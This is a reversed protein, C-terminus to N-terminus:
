MDLVAVVATKNYFELYDKGSNAIEGISMAGILPRGNGCVAELEAGFNEELFYVRSICDMMFLTGEKGAGRFGKEALERAKMASAVLSSIDGKMIHVFAEQPVEGVCVLGSEDTPKFPDRIVEEAGLKSIGFPYCKAIEFFNDWDLNRGSSKEVARRYVDFAPSWDLENVINRDSKTVRYPGSLTEWGHSVGVGSEIELLALVASDQILGANTFLCPKQVMSMSGAGGGIYNFELGFVDFLGELLASIRKAFGDVFVFMTKTLASDPIKADIIDEYEVEANSLSPIVEIKAEVPLCAVITGKELKQRNWVIAPFIGGFLPISADRLIEDILEPTFGNEDCALLLLSKAFSEDRCEEILRKLEEVTGEKGVKIFM